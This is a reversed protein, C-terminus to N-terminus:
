RSDVAGGSNDVHHLAELVTLRADIDAIVAALAELIRVATPEPLEVLIRAAAPKPLEVLLSIAAPDTILLQALERAAPDDNKM